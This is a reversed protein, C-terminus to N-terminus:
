PCSVRTLTPMRNKDLTGKGTSFSTDYLRLMLEYSKARNAPLWNGSRAEPSVIIATEDGLRLIEASTFGYRNAANAIPFGAKDLLSLTWYRAPPMPGKVVYDCRPNLPRGHDDGSAVFTLGEATGLPLLGSRANAALAYPDINGSGDRPTSRWPGVAIGRRDIDLSSITVALGLLVGAFVAVVLKLLGALTLLSEREFAGAAAGDSRAASRAM